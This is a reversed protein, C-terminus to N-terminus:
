SYLKTLDALKFIPVIDTGSRSGDIYEKLEALLIGHIISEQSEKKTKPTQRSAKNYLKILCKAHYKAEQSILDGVSLQALLVNDQLELACERVRKDIMFTSANHLDDSVDGCFYCGETTTRTSEGCSHRTIKSTQENSSDEAESLHKRKEQRSIKLNLINTEVPNTGNQRSTRSHKHLEM